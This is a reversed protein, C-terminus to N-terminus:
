VIGWVVAVCVGVLVRWLGVARGAVGGKSTPTATATYVGTPVVTATGTGFMSSSQPLPMGPKGATVSSAPPTYQSPNEYWVGNMVIGKGALMDSIQDSTCTSQIARVYCTGPQSETPKNAYTSNQPGSSRYSSLDIPQGTSLETGLIIRTFLTFAAEPQYAPVQHGADYIRTFSLNAYQRVAGGVYSGNVVLEAYGAAPFNIQYPQPALAAIALSVAEGGLWNCIYDADGYILAVRVNMALLAALDPLVNNCRDGTTLFDNFVPTSQETFNVQVGLSQMVQSTSIYELYAESPFPPPFQQRIDYFSLGSSAYVNEIDNCQQGANYCIENANAKDGYIDFPEVTRCHEILQSCGGPASFNELTNYMSLQSIAQIGYTNNAAFKPYYPTQIELDILGNIIGLSALRIQLTNNSPLVGNQGMENMQEILYAFVPGYQGGYSEVFLNVNAPGTTSGNPQVGPNYQPFASLFAQLFHWIAHAAIYTTNATAYQAQSPFTGNLFAYPPFGSPVSTPAVYTDHILDNSFNTATDYSFGVQVPQDIFLINSSRDWGWARYQTGYSGDALQVVECPGNEQFLGLM